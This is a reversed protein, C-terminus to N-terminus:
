VLQIGRVTCFNGGTSGTGFVAVTQGSLKAALLMAYVAKIRARNTEQDTSGGTFQLFATRAPCSDVPQDIVFYVVDPGDHGSVLVVHAGWADTAMAPAVALLPLVLLVFVFKKM